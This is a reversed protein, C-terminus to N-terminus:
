LLYAVAQVAGGGRTVFGQTRALLAQQQRLLSQKVRLNLLLALAEFAVGHQLIRQLLLTIVDAGVAITEFM